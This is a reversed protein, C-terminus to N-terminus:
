GIGLHEKLAALFRRSVPVTQGAITVIEALGNDAFAIDKIREPNVLYQRHCRVLKTKEELTRLTLETFREEGDPGIVYVGSPKSTVMEVEDVKLLTIRNHGLCPIHTLPRTKELPKLDQPAHDRRLRQLTKELRAADTPKLLYDFAHEEFARVAYEDYATLFVIRPMREPDLMSLMELGSVRPMQIDLFVVDPSLRNIAAIAEIANACEGVITLDGVGDLLCRLEDRALQEDDVILIKM